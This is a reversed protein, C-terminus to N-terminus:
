RNTGPVRGPVRNSHSGIPTAAACSADALASADQAAAVGV